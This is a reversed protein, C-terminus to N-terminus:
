RLLSCSFLERSSEALFAEKMLNMFSSDVAQRQSLAKHSRKSAFALASTRDGNKMDMSVHMHRRVQDSYTAGHDDATSEASRKRWTQCLSNQANYKQFADQGPSRATSSERETNIQADFSSSRFM